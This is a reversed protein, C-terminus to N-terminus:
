PNKTNYAFPRLNIYNHEWIHLFIQMIKTCINIFEIGGYPQWPIAIFIVM